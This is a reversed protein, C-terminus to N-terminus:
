GKKSSSILYQVLADLQSKPLQAFTKPMVNPPYGRAVYANPDVISQRVFQDLPQKAKKADVAPATDLDPGVTGKSAAPKFTHCSGCYACCACWGSSSKM